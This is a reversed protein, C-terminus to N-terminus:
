YENHLDNMHLYIIGRQLFKRTSTTHTNLRPLIKLGPVGFTVGARGM